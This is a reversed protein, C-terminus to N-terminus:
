GAFTPDTEDEGFLEVESRRLIKAVTERFRWNLSTRGERVRLLYSEKYPTLEALESISYLRFLPINPLQKTSM